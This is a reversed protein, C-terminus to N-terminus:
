PRSAFALHSAHITETTAGMRAAMLQEAEPTITNDQASVLFWSPITRWGAGTCEENLTARAVPRQSVALVAALDTPVDACFTQRFTEQDIYLDPGGVPVPRTM